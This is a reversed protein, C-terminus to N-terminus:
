APFEATVPRAKAAAPEDKATAAIGPARLLAVAIAGLILRVAFLTYLSPATWGRDILVGALIPSIIAGIRGLTVAWGVGTARVETPFSEPSLTFLGTACAQILAGVALALAMTLGAPGFWMGMSFFAAAAAVFSIVTLIKNKFFAALLAFLLAAAVGGLNLLIGASTGQQPSMGSQVLLRPTWGNAFYFAAMM